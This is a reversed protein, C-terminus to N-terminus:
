GAASRAPRMALLTLAPPVVFSWAATSHWALAGAGCGVAFATVQSGILRLRKRTAPDTAAVPGFLVDSVDIMLQTISGTMITTPAASALHVRSITGQLAMAAVLLMGTLVAGPDDGHAFPGSGIALSAGTALLLAQVLLLRNMQAEARRPRRGTVARASVIVACFVPLALLRAVVGGTGYILAAGVTVFNGTVHTTFLGQLGLFGIADVFGASFSLLLAVNM